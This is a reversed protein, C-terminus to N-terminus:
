RLREERVYIVYSVTTNAADPTLWVFVDGHVEGQNYLLMGSVPHGKSDTAKYTLEDGPGSGLTKNLADRLVLAIGKCDAPQQTGTLVGCWSRWGYGYVPNRIGEGLAENEITYGHQRFAAVPDFGGELVTSFKTSRSCGTALLALTSLLLVIHAKALKMHTTIPHRPSGALASHLRAPGIAVSYWRSAIGANAPM